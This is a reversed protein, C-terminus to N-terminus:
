YKSLAGKINEIGLQFKYRDTYVMTDLQLLDFIAASLDQDSVRQHATMFREEFLSGKIDLATTLKNYEAQDPSFTEDYINLAKRVIHLINSITQIRIKNGALLEQTYPYCSRLLVKIIEPCSKIQTVEPLQAGEGLHWLTKPEETLELEEYDVHKFKIQHSSGVQGLSSNFFILLKAIMKSHDPVRIEMGSVPCYFANNQSNKVNAGVSLTFLDKHGKFIRSLLELAVLDQALTDYNIEWHQSKVNEITFNPNLGYNLQLTLLYYTLTFEKM